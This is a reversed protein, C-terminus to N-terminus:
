PKLNIVVYLVSVEVLAWVWINRSCIMIHKLSMIVNSNSYGVVLLDDVFLLHSIKWNGKILPNYRRLNIERDFLSSLSNMIIIFLFPSLPCGQRLGNSSNFFGNIEGNLIISFNVNSICANIWRVFIEPFGMVRLRQILAEHNVMDFAKMLDLKAIFNNIQSSPLLDACIDHTLALNDSIDRIPIFASQASDIITPLVKRLRNAM